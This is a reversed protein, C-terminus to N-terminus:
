LRPTTNCAVSLIKQETGIVLLWHQGAFAGRSRRDEPALDLFLTEYLLIQLWATM